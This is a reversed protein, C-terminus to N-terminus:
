ETDTGTDPIDASGERYIKASAIRGDSLRYFGAIPVQMSRGDVVMEEVLEAAVLDVGAVLRVVRLQPAIAEFAGTFLEELEARGSCRYEGTEWVADATFGDLLAVVDRANFASVHANVVTKADLPAM